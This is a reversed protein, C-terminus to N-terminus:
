AEGLARKIDDQELIEDLSFRRGDYAYRAVSCNGPVPREASLGEGCVALLFERSASGHSVVLVREHGPQQMIETLTGVIRARFEEQGEGGFQRYFDGWPYPPMLYVHEGEFSGFFWERLGSVREYPMDTICEITQHTRALTSAYAHDFVIGERRFYRGVREAQDEGEATLPSDSWGQIIRKENFLTRGHRVLYLTGAM